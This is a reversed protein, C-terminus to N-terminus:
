KDKIKKKFRFCKRIFKKNKKNSDNHPYNNQFIENKQIFFDQKQLDIILKEDNEDYDEVIKNIIDVNKNVWKNRYIEEFKLRENPNFTILNTLFSIFDKDVIQCSQIYNIDKDLFKIFNDALIEKDDEKANFLLPFGYKLSFLACGLAFYDQGREESANVRKDLLYERYTYGQTGWPIKYEKVKDNIKKLLGFDAIKLKKKDLVLNNEPKIDFHVYNNQYLAM